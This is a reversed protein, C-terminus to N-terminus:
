RGDGATLSVLCPSWSPTHIGGPLFTLVCPPFAAAVATQQHSARHGHGTRPHWSQGVRCSRSPLFQPQPTIVPRVLLRPCILWAVARRPFPGQPETVLGVAPLVRVHLCATCLVARPPLPPWACDCTCVNVIVTDLLCYDPDQEWLILINQCPPLTNQPYASIELECSTVLGHYGPCQSHKALHAAEKKDGLSSVVFFKWSHCIGKGTPSLLM